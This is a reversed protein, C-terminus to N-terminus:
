NCKYSEWSIYNDKFCKLEEELKELEKIRILYPSSDLAIVRPEEIRIVEIIEPECAPEGIIVPYPEPYWECCPSIESHQIGNEYSVKTCGVGDIDEMIYNGKELEKKCDLPTKYKDALGDPISNEIKYCTFYGLPFAIVFIVLLCLIINTAKNLM